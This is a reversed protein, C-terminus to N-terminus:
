EIKDKLFEVNPMVNTHLVNDQAMDMVYNIYTIEAINHRIMKPLHLFAVAMQIVSVPSSGHNGYFLFCLKKKIDKQANYICDLDSTYQKDFKPYVVDFFYKMASEDLANFWETIQFLSPESKGDEWNKVTRRNVGLSIAMYEQTRDAKKRSDLFVEHYKKENMNMYGNQNELVAELGSLTAKELYKTDLGIEDPANITGNKKSNNYYHMIQRAATVRTQMSAHLHTTMLEMLLAVEVGHKNSCMFCLQQVISDPLIDLLVKIGNNYTDEDDKLVIDDVIQPYLYEMYYPIPNLGLENFWRSSQAFSPASTGSEWNIITRRTVGMKESAEKQTIGADQRSSWYIKSFRIMKDYRNEM